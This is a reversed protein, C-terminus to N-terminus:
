SLLFMRDWAPEVDAAAAMLAMAVGAAGDLVGARDVATDGAELSAYGFPLEPDYAGLLRDVLASAAGELPGSATERSFRLVIGLLGAWGHCYTPSSLYRLEVPRRLVSMVGEVASRRLEDDDLTQGALWLSRAVGPNGYCWAGRTAVATRRPVERGDPAPPVADPWSGGWADDVRQALLWRALSRVADIQGPVEHGARAALSLVALVGPIGHALGCNLQGSPYARRMAESTPMGPPTAWRPAGHPDPRSRRVLATLVQPLVGFPDRRLLYAAVGSAGNVTDYTSTPVGDAGVDLKAAVAAARPALLEDVASLLHQYRDGNRSLSEVAFAFGSLGDFLGPRTPRGRGLADAGDALFGHGIADWGEEPLCQDLYSCMLAIGASGAALGWPSWRVSEPHRTQRRALPLSRAIRNRDAARM